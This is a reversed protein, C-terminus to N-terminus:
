NLTNLYMYVATIADMNKVLRQQLLLFCTNFTYRAFINLHTSSNCKIYNLKKRRYDLYIKREMRRNWYYFQSIEYDM